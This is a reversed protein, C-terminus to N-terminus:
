FNKLFFIETNQTQILVNLWDIHISYTIDVSVFFYHVFQKLSQKVIEFM